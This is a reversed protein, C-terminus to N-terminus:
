GMAASIIEEVMRDYDIGKETCAAAFGADPSLCPNANVELVYIRGNRDVRFDVRGYGSLSFLDWCKLSIESLKEHLPVDAPDKSFIRPTNDYEFSFSEWKAAYGVIHPKGEPFSAFSIEAPPLVIVSGDAHQLLSLNFERGHIYREAFLKRKKEYKRNEKWRRWAPKDNIISEDDIGISAHDSASKVIFPFIDPGSDDWEIPQWEPTPIGAAKMIRKSICKDSTVAITASSSGTYPIHLSEYLLPAASIFSDNEALSEVLNFILEPKKNAILRRGTELDLTLPLTDVKWGFRKLSGGVAEIQAVVDLEDKTPNDSLKNHVILASRNM